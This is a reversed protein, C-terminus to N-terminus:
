PVSWGDANLEGAPHDAPRESGGTEELAARLEDFDKPRRDASVALCHDVATLVARSFRGPGLGAASPLPDAKGELVATARLEARKPNPPKWPPKGGAVIRWMVAGLAYVDTWPGLDGEGTQEFATYGETFPAASKSHRETVQKAAGFDILVPRGDARRVLINSPKIEQHLLGTSHLRSLTELLPIALMRLDSEQLPRGAAERQKLLESLPLGDVYEMVMYATGNARFFDTCRVVGPNDKLGAIKRAEELFRREGDEYHERCAEGRPHATGAERVSLEAPLYEKIAVPCRVEEHLARYVVGYGGRGLVADIKYGCLVTGIPLVGRLDLGGETM